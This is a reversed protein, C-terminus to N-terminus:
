VSRTAIGVLRDAGESSGSVIKIFRLGSVIALNEIPVYKSAAITLSYDAGASQVTNFTGGAASAATIKLTTGTIAAPLHFGCLTTGNLDIEDSTTQGSLITAIKDNCVKADYDKVTPTSM